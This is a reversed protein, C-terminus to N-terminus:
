YFFRDHYNCISNEIIILRTFRMKSMLFSCGRTPGNQYNLDQSVFEYDSDGFLNGQGKKTLLQRLVDPPMAM